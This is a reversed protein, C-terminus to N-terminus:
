RTWRVSPEVQSDQQADEPIDEQADQQAVREADALRKAREEGKKRIFEPYAEFADFDRDYGLVPCPIKLWEGNHDLYEDFPVFVHSMLVDPGFHPLYSGGHHYKHRKTEECVLEVFESMFLDEDAMGDPAFITGDPENFASVGETEM